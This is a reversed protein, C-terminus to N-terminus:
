VCGIISHKTLYFFNLCKEPVVSSVSYANNLETKRDLDFWLMKKKHRLCSLFFLSLYPETYSSEVDFHGTGSSNKPQPLPQELQFTTSNSCSLPSSSCCAFSSHIPENTALGLGWAKECADRYLWVSEKGRVM